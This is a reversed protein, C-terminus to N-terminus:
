LSTTRFESQYECCAQMLGFRSRPGSPVECDATFPFYLNTGMCLQDAHCSSSHHLPPVDTRTRTKLLLHFHGNPKVGQGREVRAFLEIPVQVSRMIQRFGTPPLFIEGM